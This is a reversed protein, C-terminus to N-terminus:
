PNHEIFQRLAAARAVDDEKSEFVEVEGVARLAQVEEATVVREDSYCRRLIWFFLDYGRRLTELVALGDPKPCVTLIVYPRRGPDLGQVANAWERPLDDNSMRRIWFERGGITVRRM